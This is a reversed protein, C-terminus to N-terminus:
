CVMGLRCFLFGQQLINTGMPTALPRKDQLGDKGAQRIVNEKQGQFRPGAVTQKGLGGFALPNNEDNLPVRFPTKPAINGPTKPQLSRVGQNLSKAVAATQHSHVLNEQDRAALMKLFKAESTANVPSSFPLEIQSIIRATLKTTSIDLIEHQKPKRQWPCRRRFPILTIVSLLSQNHLIQVWFAKTCASAPDVVSM